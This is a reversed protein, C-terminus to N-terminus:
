EYLSFISRQTVGGGWWLILPARGLTKWVKEAVETAPYLICPSVKKQTGLELWCSQPIKGRVYGSQNLTREGECRDQEGYELDRVLGRIGKAKKVGAGPSM